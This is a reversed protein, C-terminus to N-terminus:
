SRLKFSDKKDRNGFCKTEIVKKPTNVTRYIIHPFFGKYITGKILIFM